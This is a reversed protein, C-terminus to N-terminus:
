ELGYTETENVLILSFSADLLLTIPSFLSFTKNERKFLYILRLGM